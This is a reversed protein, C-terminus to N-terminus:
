YDDTNEHMKIRKLMNDNSEAMKRAVVDKGVSAEGDVVLSIKKFEKLANLNMQKDKARADNLINEAKENILTQITDQASNLETLKNNKTTEQLIQGYQSFELLKEPDAM